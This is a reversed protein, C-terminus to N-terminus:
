NPDAVDGIDSDLVNKIIDADDNIEKGPTNKGISNGILDIDVQDPRCEIRSKLHAITRFSQYKMAILAALIGVEIGFFVEPIQFDRLRERVGSGWQVIGDRLGEEGAHFPLFQRMVKILSAILKLIINCLIDIVVVPDAQMLFHAHSGRNLNFVIEQCFM